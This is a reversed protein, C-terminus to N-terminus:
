FLFVDAQHRGRLSKYLIVSRSSPPWRHITHRPCISFLVESQSSKPQSQHPNYNTETRCGPVAKRRASSIHQSHAESHLEDKSIGKEATRTPPPVFHPNPKTRKLEPTKQQKKERPPRPQEEKHDPTKRTKNNITKKQKKKEEKKAKKKKTKKWVYVQEDSTCVYM